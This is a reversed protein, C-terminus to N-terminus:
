HNCQFKNCVFIIYGESTKSRYAAQRFNSEVNEQKKFIERKDKLELKGNNIGLKPKEKFKLVLFTQLYLIHEFASMFHCMSSNHSTGLTHYTM